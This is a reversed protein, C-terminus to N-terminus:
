ELKLGIRQVIPELRKREADMYQALHAPSSAIPVSGQKRMAELYDKDKSAASMAEVLRGVVPAPLGVPGVLANWNRTVLQPLGAEATTPIKPALESRQTGTIAYARLRGAEVMPLVATIDGFLIHNRGSLLDPLAAGTGRYPVHLMDIGAISKFLEGALHPMTGIGASGYNVKGGSAKAFAVFDKLTEAKVTTSAVVIQPSENILGVMALQTGADVGKVGAAPAIVLPGASGILLTYGDPKAAIVARTAVIGGAGPRNEIVITSKLQRRMAEAFARGSNDVPGGAAFPVVFTIQRTPYSQAVVAGGTAVLAAVSALVKRLM